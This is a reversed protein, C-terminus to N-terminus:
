EFAKRLEKVKIKLAKVATFGATKAARQSFAQGAEPLLDALHNEVQRILGEIVEVHVINENNGDPM